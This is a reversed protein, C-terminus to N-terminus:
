RYRNNNLGLTRFKININCAEKSSLHYDKEGMNEFELYASKFTRTKKNQVGKHTKRVHGATVSLLLICILFAKIM